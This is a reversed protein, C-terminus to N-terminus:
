KEGLRKQFYVLGAPTVFSTPAAYEGNTKQFQHFATVIWKTAHQYPTNDKRTYGNNRLWECFKNRGVGLIKAAKAYDYETDAAVVADHFEVKPANVVAKTELVILSNQLLRKKEFDDAWTRAMLVPDTFDPINLVQTRAQEELEQWRDVLRVTFEPSMQAVVVYTDRKCIVYHREVVGNASKIGDVFPPQSIAGRLVLRDISRKVHDHRSQLLDAIERSTMTLEKNSMDMVALKSM